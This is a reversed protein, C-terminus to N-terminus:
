DFVYDAFDFRGEEDSTTTADEVFEDETGAARKQLSITAGSVPGDVTRGEVVNTVTVTFSDSDSLEGDSASVTLAYVNDEDQDTPEDFDPAENFTVAGESSISFAAADDGSLSFTLADGDPDTASVTVVDTNGESVSQDGVAAVSPSQNVPPPPPEPDNSSNGAGCATLMAAVVALSLTNRIM